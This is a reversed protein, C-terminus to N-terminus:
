CATKTTLNVAKLMYCFNARADNEVLALERSGRRELSIARSYTLIFAMRTPFVDHQGRCQRSQSGCIPNKQSVWAPQPPASGAM